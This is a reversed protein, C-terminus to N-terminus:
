LGKAMNLHAAVIPAVKGAFAKLSAVDGNDAYGRLGDLAAQHADVQAAAYAKDFDAGNKSSLDDLTQQQASSLAPDPVIAPTAAAAASMLDATSKTHAKIMQGAFTKVKASAAHDAALRSSQIEFSDSAAATNAFTQGASAMPTADIAAMTADMSAQDTTATQKGCAALALAGATVILFTSHKM